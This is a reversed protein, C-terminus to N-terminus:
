KVTETTILRILESYASNLQVQMNEWSVLPFQKAIKIYPHEDVYVRFEAKDM